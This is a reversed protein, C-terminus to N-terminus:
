RGRTGCLSGRYDLECQPPSAINNVPVALSVESLTEAKTM